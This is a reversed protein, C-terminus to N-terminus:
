ASTSGESQAGDFVESLAEVDEDSTASLGIIEDRLKFALSPRHKILDKVNNPTLFPRDDGDLVCAAIMTAIVDDLVKANGNERVVTYASELRNRVTGTMERVRVVGSGFGPTDVDKTVIESTAIAALFDERSTVKKETM